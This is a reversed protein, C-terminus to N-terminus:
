LSPDNTYITFHVYPVNGPTSKIEIFRTPDESKYYYWVYQSISGDNDKPNNATVKVILPNVRLPDFTKEPTSQNLGIGVENGFQPFYINMSDLSPLANVVSFWM